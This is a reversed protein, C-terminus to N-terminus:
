QDVETRANARMKGACRECVSGTEIIRGYGNGSLPQRLTLKYREFRREGCSICRPKDANENTKNTESNALEIRNQRLTEYTMKTEKVPVKQLLVGVSSHWRRFAMM